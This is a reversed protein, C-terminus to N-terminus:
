ASGFGIFELDALRQQVEAKLLDITVHLCHVCTVGPDVDSHLSSYEDAWQYHGYSVCLPVVETGVLMIKKSHIIGFPDIIFEFM